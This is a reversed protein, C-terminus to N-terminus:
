LTESRYHAIAGELQVVLREIVERQSLVKCDKGYRIIERIFWFTSSIRRTVVKTKGDWYDLYDSERLQYAHALGGHLEFRVPITAMGEERWTEPKLPTISAGEEPIRDFRLCWNHQLAPLDQNKETEDCWCELYQRSEREAVEAYRATFTFVQGAADVYSLRFPTKNTILSLIRTAAPSDLDKPKVVQVAKHAIAKYFATQNGETGWIYGLEYAIAKFAEQEQETVSLQVTNRKSM